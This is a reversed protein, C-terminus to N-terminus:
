PIPQASCRPVAPPERAATNVMPRAGQAAIERVFDRLLRAFPTHYLGLARTLDDSATMPNGAALHTVGLATLREAAQEVAILNALDMGCRRCITADGRRARCNPCPEM